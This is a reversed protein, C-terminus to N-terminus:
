SQMAQRMLRPACSHAAAEFRFSGSCSFVQIASQINGIVGRDQPSAPFDRLKLTLMFNEPFPTAKLRPTALGSTNM